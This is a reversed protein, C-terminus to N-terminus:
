FIRISYSMFKDVPFVEVSCISYALVMGLAEFVSTRLSAALYTIKPDTMTIKFHARNPFM